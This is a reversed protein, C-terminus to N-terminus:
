IHDGMQNHSTVSIDTWKNEASNTGEKQDMTFKIVADGNPPRHPVDAPYLM